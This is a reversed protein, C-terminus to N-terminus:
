FSGPQLLVKVNEPRAAAALGAVGQALPYVATVLEDVEVRGDALLRLAPAFAGCRSGIVRVENVVLPALDVGAAGAYTSKLVVTGCPRCLRLALALGAPAGTCEVVVDSGEVAACDSVDLTRIGWRACLALTAPNRGIVTLEGPQMALVQAVLLGLRGSGLVVVRQGSQLTVVDLVHAAAALPEVFVAQRDTVRDPVLHCNGAPITLYEAFAGDRGAIGLVTRRPCHNALGRGCFDCRGCPCNIEAVVRRGHLRDDGAVVTGVFEHGPVGAYHMYGRAIELDTACVGALHVRICVEGAAPQPMPHDRVFEVRPPQDAPVILAQM